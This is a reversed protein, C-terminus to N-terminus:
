ARGKPTVVTPFYARWKGPWHDGMLGVRGSHAEESSGRLLGASGVRLGLSENGLHSM